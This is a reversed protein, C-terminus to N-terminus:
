GNLKWSLLRVLLNAPPMARIVHVLFLDDVIGEVSKDGDPTFQYKIYYGMGPELPQTMDSLEAQRVKYVGSREMCPKLVRQARHMQHPTHEVAKPVFIHLDGIRFMFRGLQGYQKVVDAM